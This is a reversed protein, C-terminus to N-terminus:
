APITLTCRHAKSMGQHGSGPAFRFVDARLSYKTKQGSASVSRGIMASSGNTRRGRSFSLHFDLSHRDTIGAAGVLTRLGRAICIRKDFYRNNAHM